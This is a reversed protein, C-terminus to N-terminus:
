DHAPRQEKRPKATGILHSGPPGVDDYDGRDESLHRQEPRNAEKRTEEQDARAPVDESSRRLKCANSDEADPMALGRGCVKDDHEGQGGEKKIKSM